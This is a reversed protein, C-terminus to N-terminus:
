QLHRHQVRGTPPHRGHAARHARRAGDDDPRGPRVDPEPTEDAVLSHDSQVVFTPPRACM